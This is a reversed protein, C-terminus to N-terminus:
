SNTKNQRSKISWEDLIKMQHSLKPIKFKAVLYSKTRLFFEVTGM